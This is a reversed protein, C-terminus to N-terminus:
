NLMKDNVTSVKSDGCVEGLILDTICYHNTQKRSANYAFSFMNLGYDPDM